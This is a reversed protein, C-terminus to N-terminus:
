LRSLGRISNAVNLMMTENIELITILIRNLIREKLCAKSSLRSLSVHSAGIYSNDTLKRVARKGSIKAKYERHYRTLCLTFWLSISLYSALMTCDAVGLCPFSDSDIIPSSCYSSFKSSSTGSM